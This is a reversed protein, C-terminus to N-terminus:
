FTEWSSKVSEAVENAYFKTALEDKDEYSSDSKGKTYYFGNSTMHLRTGTKTNGDVSYLQGTIGNKGGDNVGVYSLTGDKHEFKAGGSDPENLIFATGNTGSVSHDVKDNILTRVAPALKTLTVAGDALETTGISGAVIVASIENNPSIHLQVQVADKQVTYIDVLENVPIFLHTTQNQIVLDIYKDGVKAGQYPVDPTDVTEVSGRQIVMDKPIDIKGVLTNGQYINYTKAYGESTEASVEVTVAGVDAITDSLESLADEVNTANFREEEDIIPIDAAILNRLADAIQKKVSGEVTNDGTLTDVIIQLANVDSVVIFKTEDEPDTQVIYPVYKKSSTDYIM